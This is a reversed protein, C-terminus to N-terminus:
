LAIIQVSSVSIQCDSSWIGVQGGSIYRTDQVPGLVPQDNIYATITTGKVEIRYTFEKNEPPQFARHDFQKGSNTGGDPFDQDYFLLAENFTKGDCTFPVGFSSDAEHCISFTYGGKESTGHVVLGFGNVKMNNYRILKIRAVVQYNSVNQGGPNYPALLPPTGKGDNLLQNDIVHWHQNDVGWGQWHDSTSDYLITGPQPPGPTPTPTANPTPTPTFTPAPTPTAKPGLTSTPTTQVIPHSNGSLSPLIGVLLFVIALVLTSITIRLLFRRRKPPPGPHLTVSSYIQLFGSVIGIAASIAALVLYLM